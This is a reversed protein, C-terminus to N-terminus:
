GKQNRSRRTLHELLNEKRGGTITRAHNWVMDVTETRVRVGGSNAYGVTGPSDYTWAEHGKLASPLAFASHQLVGLSNQHLQLQQYTSFAPCSYRLVAKSSLATELKELIGQQHKLIAFRYYHKKWYKWQRSRISSLSHPRKYQFILSVYSSPLEAAKPKARARQWLNPVLLLGAPAKVGILQWIPADQPPAAAVDYGVIAELVQGAAFIGAHQLGLEINAPVEYQKEEFEAVAM